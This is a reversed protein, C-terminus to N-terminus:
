RLNPNRGAQDLEALKQKWETAQESKTEQCFQVLRQLAEKLRPKGVAPILNERQKMGEYGTLLLPRAEAYKKQGLLSGGLLSRTNFTRWDDPINKERSELCERALPEADRFKEGNLLVLALEALAGTLEPSDPPVNARLNQLRERSVVEATAFDGLEMLVDKLVLSAHQSESWPWDSHRQYLAVAEEAPHRAEVADGSRRVVDALHHLVKGTLPSELDPNQKAVQRLCALAERFATVAETLKGERDFLMASDHLLEAVEPHATGLLNRQRAIEERYFTEAAPLDNLNVLVNMLVRIAHMREEAPWEPHLRYLGIAEEALPRAEGLAQEACLADALHHLIKGVSQTTPPPGTSSPKRLLDLAERLATSAETTKGQRLLVRALHELFTVLHTGGSLEPAFSRDDDTLKRDIEAAQRLLSEAESLQGQRERLNALNALSVAVHPHLDGGLKRRMALGQQLFPEAEAFKGQNALVLGLNDLMAAVEFHEEGYLKIKLPLAERRAAEAEVLKGEDLLVGALQNLLRALELPVARNLKREMAVAESLLAEADPLRRQREVVLGLDSLLASLAPHTEGLRRREIPLAERYLAEAEQLTGADGLVMALNGLLTAVDPDDNPLHKRALALGERALAEAEPLKRQDYLVSSLKGLSLAVDAHENGRLKRRMALARGILSEAEALKTKIAPSLSRLWVEIEARRDYAQLTSALEELSDAVLLHEGFLRQRIALAKRLMAESQEYNELDRYVQGLTTRLEAEVEPQDKLDSGIRAATKDVIDRLLTTDRGLAVGPGVGELMDKLFQAVQRSEEALRRNQQALERAKRTQSQQYMFAAGALVAIATVLAGVRVLTRVRREVSRMQSVSKGSQLLALDAHLEAATQYRKKVDAHCARVVIENLEALQAREAAPKQILDTPLEPFEQRDRGTAMEYLVKGLSFIDAQATGPGEPPLYGETGVVSLTAEARAVLGIDALKPIGNVFIINSPKIDRHVLGHRHLHDLATALALGIQLCEEFPLRGRHHLESRLTRPAYLVSDRLGFDSRSDFGPGQTETLGGTTEPKPDEKSSRGESNPSQEADALEMVYYFLGADDNRGVHLVSLQSPHTRSVPEFRRIGEFERNYPRDHDFAARYVIKVARCTGLATRALWVEGYSGRGIRRILEHDPIVPPAPLSAAMPEATPSFTGNVDNLLKDRANPGDNM